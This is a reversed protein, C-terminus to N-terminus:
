HAAAYDTAADASAAATKTHRNTVTLSPRLATLERSRLLDM